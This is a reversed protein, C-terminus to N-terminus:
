PLRVTDPADSTGQFYLNVASSREGHLDFFTGVLGHGPGGSAVGRIRTQGTLTGEVGVHFISREPQNTDITALPLVGYCCVSTSTSFRQEFENFVLFQAVVGAAQQLLFDQSCPMLAIANLVTLNTVPDFAGDFFHNVILTQPCSAYETGLQLVNNGDNTNPIAPVGIANEKTIDALAPSPLLQEITTLGVLVNSEVPRNQSDVAVCTLNGVFPDESVKPVRTGANSQGGPGRRSTGNLPITASTLGESARWAIPQRATIHVHFDVENWGSLCLGGLCDAGTACIAGTNSCHSNANVYFCHVDIPQDSTNSLQVLTDVGDDTSFQIAPFMLLAAAKDSAIDAAGVRSTAAVLALSLIVPIILIRRLTM